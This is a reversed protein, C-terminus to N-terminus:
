CYFANSLNSKYLVNASAIFSADFSLLIKLLEFVENAVVETIASKLSIM